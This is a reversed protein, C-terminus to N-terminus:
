ELAPNVETEGDPSLFDVADSQRHLDGTQLEPQGTEQDPPLWLEDPAAQAMPADLLPFSLVDTAEDQGRYERNLNRLGADDTILM